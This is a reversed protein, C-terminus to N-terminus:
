KDQSESGVDTDLEAQMAKTAEDRSGPRTGFCDTGVRVNDSGAMTAVEVDASMGMSLELAGDDPGAEELLKDYGDEGGPAKEVLAKDQRLASVLAKRTQALRAFDPNAALVDQANANSATSNAAAGITM